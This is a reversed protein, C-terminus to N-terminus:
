DPRDFEAPPWLWTGHAANYLAQPSAPADGSQHIGDHYQYGLRAPDETPTVTCGALLIAAGVPWFKLCMSDGM